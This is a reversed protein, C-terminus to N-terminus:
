NGLEVQKQEPQKKSLFIGIKPSVHELMQERVSEELLELTKLQEPSTDEYLIDAIAHLHEHM